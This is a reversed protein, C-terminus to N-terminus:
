SNPRNPNDTSILRPVLSMLMAAGIGLATELIRYITTEPVKL